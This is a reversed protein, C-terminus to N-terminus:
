SYAKKILQPDPAEKASLNVIATWNWVSVCLLSLVFGVGQFM